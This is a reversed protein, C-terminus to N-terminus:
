GRDLSRKHVFVSHLFGLGWAQHMVALAIPAYVAEWTKRSLLYWVCILILASAYFVPYLIFAQHILLLLFSLFLALINLVPILQRLKPQTKNKLLNKARGSGYGFYQRWLGKITKRPFYGIRISADLYVRGGAKHLRADYEADENHTFSEDYGGLSLFTARKFAAHHGHDVFGSRRGGRHPSGGSGLPTDVVWANVRQFGVEGIADMPVVISDAQFKALGHAVHLVYNEPYVAHADCRVLIDREHDADKAGLNVGCSQIKNPNHLVDLNPFTETLYELRKLTGDTSGGDVVLFQVFSLASHGAMLAKICKEIHASENLVPIVVAVRRALDECAADNLDLGLQDDM